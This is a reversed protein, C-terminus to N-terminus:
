RMLELLRREFTTKIHAKLEEVDDVYMAHIYLCRRDSSVDLALTGPTLSILSALMTIEADSMPELPLAIVGPRFYNRPTVVDFAVRLSSIVLEYAMFAIFTIARWVREFYDSDDWLPRLVLLVGYAIVFGTILTALAFSGTVAAWALALLLNLVFLTM